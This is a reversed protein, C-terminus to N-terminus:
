PHSTPRFRRGLFTDWRPQRGIRFSNEIRFVIDNRASARVGRNMALDHLADHRAQTVVHVPQSNKHNDEKMRQRQGRGPTTAITQEGCGQRFSRSHPAERDAFNGAGHPGMGKRRPMQM